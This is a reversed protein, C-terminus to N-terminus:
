LHGNSWIKNEKVFSFYDHDGCILTRTREKLLASVDYMISDLMSYFATITLSELALRPLNISTYALNGRGITTEEGNCNQYVRTRCGMIGLKHPDCLTNMASDTLLYTPIMRKATCELAFIFLDHNPSYELFNITHNVKFIINPRVWSLPSDKFVSLFIQTTKKGWINTELGINFSLYYPERCYRTKTLNIWEIFNKICEEFFMENEPTFAISNQEFLSSIESDFNAFGIGGSQYMALNSIISKYGNFISMIKGCDSQGSLGKRMFYNAVIPTSCNYVKGYAELDHIHIYGKQHLTRFCEPLTNLVAKKAEAVGLRYIEGVFNKRIAADEVEFTDM